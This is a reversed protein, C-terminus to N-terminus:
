GGVACYPPTLKALARDVRGVLDRDHLVTAGHDQQVWGTIKYGAMRLQVAALRDLVGGPPVITTVDMGCWRSLMRCAAKAREVQQHPTLPDRFERHYARNNQWPWAEAHQGAVCHTLGHCAVTARGAAVMHKIFEAQMPFKDPYPTMDGNREAWCATIALTCRSEHTALWKWLAALEEVRLERYPRRKGPHYEWRKSSAGLDDIRLPTM